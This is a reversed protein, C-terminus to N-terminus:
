RENSSKRRDVNKEVLAVQIKQQEPDFGDHVDAQRIINSFIHLKPEEVVFFTSIWGVTLDVTRGKM